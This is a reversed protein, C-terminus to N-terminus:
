FLLSTGPHVQSHQAHIFIVSPLTLVLYQSHVQVDTNLLFQVYLTQRHFPSRRLKISVESLNSTNSLSIRGSSYKM